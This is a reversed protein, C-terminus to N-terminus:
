WRPPSAYLFLPEPAETSRLYRLSAWRIGNKHLPECHSVSIGSTKALTEPAILDVPAAELIWPIERYRREVPEANAILVLSSVFRSRRIPFLRQQFCGALHSFRLVLVDTGRHVVADDAGQLRATAPALHQPNLIPVDVPLSMLDRNGATVRLICLIAANREVSQGHITWPGKSFHRARCSEDV